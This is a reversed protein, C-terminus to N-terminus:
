IAFGVRPRDPAQRKTPAPIDAATIETLAAIDDAAGETVRVAMAPIIETEIMNIVHRANGFNKQRHAYDDTLREALRIRADPTLSFQHRSLYREAIEMLEEMSFDDFVYINSDPIRSKFGPNMDFMLKMEQPYGALILMWDRRSTDALTTLLTEIVFKGPDRPDNQQYLQYAEDILLIGGQAEEIAELTKESESNYNQGLLTAREKVVVHGKSLLGARRLMLGIMRAVTTKGTGPSGLFMAHLPSTSEPFGKEARMRNFRVVREYVTLKEKVSRLGTLSDLSALLSPEEGAPQGDAQPKDDAQPEDSPTQCSEDGTDSTAQRPNIEAKIFEDLLRDFEDDTSIPDLPEFFAKLRDDATKPSYEELPKLGEGAWYGEFEPGNLSFVFGAIPYQMCLLEAYYTGSYYASYCFQLSASYRNEGFDECKPETFLTQVERGNPYHLRLELEPLVLPPNEGFKQTLDFRATIMLCDEIVASRYIGERGEIQLGANEAEYWGRPSGLEKEGFLHLIRENLTSSSTEDCVVLKFSHGPKFGIESHLLVTHFTKYPYEGKINVRVTRRDIECRDTADVLTLSVNRRIGKTSNSLFYRSNTFEIEVAIGAFDSDILLDNRNDFGLLQIDRGCGALEDASFSCFKIQEIYLPSKTKM